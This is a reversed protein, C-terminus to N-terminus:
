KTRGRRRSLQILSFSVYRRNRVDVILLSKKDAILYIIEVVSNAGALEIVLQTLESALLGELPIYAYPVL